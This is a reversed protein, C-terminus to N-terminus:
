VARLAIGLFITIIVSVVVMAERINKLLTDSVGQINKIKRSAQKV